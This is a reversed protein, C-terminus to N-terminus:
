HPAIDKNTSRDFHNVKMYDEIAEWSKCEHQIGWGDVAIRRGDPEDRPWELAMDGGCMIGQRLYDFCHGVHEEAIKTMNDQNSHAHAAKAESGSPNEIAALSRYYYARIQGLCHLQHFLTVSYIEGWPTHQGPPLEYTSSNAVYVFGRGPQPM